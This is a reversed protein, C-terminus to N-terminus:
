KKLQQLVIQALNEYGGEFHHAGKLAVVTVNPASLGHCLSDKDDEGWLCLVPPATIRALEPGVAMGAASDHLWDSVHFEFQVKQSPGLLAILRVRSRLDGPLRNIMAPLVDAGRSYGVVIVRSKNWSALYHDIIAGLDAGAGDPTRKKWFYQLSNLGVVPFGNDALVKSMTKDLSAWGGDGSVFIVFTDSPAAAPIEVLPLKSVDIAPAPSAM